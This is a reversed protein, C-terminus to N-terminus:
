ATSLFDLQGGKGGILIESGNLNAGGALDFCIFPIKNKGPVVNCNQANTLVQMAESMSSVASVKGSRMLMGLLGSTAVIAPGKILGASVFDRRTVPRVHDNHLIPEDVGHARPLKKRILM